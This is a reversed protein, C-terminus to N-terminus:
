RCAASCRPSPLLFAVQAVAVYTFYDVDPRFNGLATNLAPAAVLVWLIPTTVQGIMAGVTKVAIALRRAYLPALGSPAVATM